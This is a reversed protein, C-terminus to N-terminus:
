AKGFLPLVRSRYTSNIVLASVAHFALLAVAGGRRLDAAGAGHRDSRQAHHLRVVRLGIAITGTAFGFLGPAAPEAVTVEQRELSQQTEEAPLRVAVSGAKTWNQQPQFDQTRTKDHAISM